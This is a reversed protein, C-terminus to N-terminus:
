PSVVVKGQMGGHLVCEYEYTGAKSFAIRSVNPQPTASDNDLLGSNLFGNGHNTGDYPPMPGTPPDSPYAAQPNFGAPGIPEIRRVAPAGFTVTHAETTNQGAMSFAITQGVKVNATAPFFANITFREGLPARGVQVTAGTPTAAPAPKASTERGHRSVTAIERTRATANARASPISRNPSVVSVSGRMGPHIACVYQFRGAKTFKVTFPKPPGAIPLGSNVLKAGTYTRGGQPAVTLPNLGLSPQGNFWFLNGAADRAGSVPAAPDPTVLGPSAQGRAPITVTHFGRFQWRVSDGVHITLTRRFFGNPSFQPAPNPSAGDAGAYATHTAASAGAPVAAACCAVAVATALIRKSL